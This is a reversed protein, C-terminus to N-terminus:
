KGGNEREGKGYEEMKSSGKDEDSEGCDVQRLRPRGVRRRGGQKDEPIRKVGKKRALRQM